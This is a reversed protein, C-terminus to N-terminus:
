KVERKPLAFAFTAGKGEGPSEAWIRGMHAEVLGKTVSLGLGTGKIYTPKKIAAFPEFVRPLDEERIGIGTDAVKVVITQKNERVILRIGGGEPTFKSANNLLNMLVQSLRVPDGLIPLPKKPVEVNFRQKKAKIFPVIESISHRIIERLDIPEPTTQLKGSELRQIDLLDDTLSTLRDTNRKVVELNSKVESPVPGSEGSLVLDLYGKISILPTRLEHTVASMFRDRMEENRKRETLDVLSVLTRNGMSSAHVEVQRLSGDKCTITAEMPQIGGHKKIAQEFRRSWIAKLEERYKEDPYALRWWHALDPVDEMTYGFLETFRKNVLQAEEQVGSLMVMAVPSGEVLQRFRRESEKLVAEAQKQETIDNWFGMVEVPKDSADRIVKAEERIWRSTGDKHLFRYEFVRHGERWLLPLEAYYRSLDDPFIRDHWAEPHGILDKPGFGTLETVRNSMYTPDFDSLDPHPRGTFIAVPNSTIVYELRERVSRLEEEMRKRETIDIWYGDVEKPKGNADRFVKAEERIWRYTGDKHLFRYEFIHRGDKWLLPVEALYRRLDDPHVRDNWMKIYEEPEFGLLSVVSKSLYTADFNSLDPRSRAAFIIAPNSIIVHELEERSSRLEEEMRKRETIDIAIGRLDVIKNEHVIPASHVIAPFTSGDKRQLLYDNSALTEGAILRKVNERRRERDQPSYLQLANLGAQLDEKSYGTSTFAVRNLFTFNHREDVEFVSQPLLDALERFRTESAALKTTRELVLRELGASYQKLEEEMRKRETIDRAVGLYGTVRGTSDVQPVVHDELWCYEESNRKRMRYVRVASKGEIVMQTAAQVEAVDDPHLSRGWISPDDLFEKARYGLIREVQDSMFTLPSVMANADFQGAYILEDINEVLQRYKAEGALLAEEARKRETIDRGYLNVYGAEKIPKVLFTYTKGGFEVAINKDQRTSLADASLDRWFKPAVQGVETGWEQLLLKTAPNATLIAGDKNLRLVPNPNESPFRALGRIEEEMRKRETIDDFTTYAQFPKTEGLKFQPVANINIWRYEESSPNFVGMVVNRVEKGTKLAVMSPHTEGPFDSGDEHIAKWRPDTSTRGQMQDITLGLIREAAPNASIIRGNSDQYVVGQAMTEFLVRHKEESVRLAEEARKRETIETWAGIIELPKGESDRLLRGDEHMWRYTGDKHLFRYECVFRELEPVRALETSVRSRDEPHIHDLYFKPDDTLEHPEYGLISKVNESVFTEAYNGSPEGSYIIALSSTLLHELRSRAMTLEMEARKRETIDLIIAQFGATRGDITYRTPKSMLHLVRGDRHMVRFELTESEIPSSVAKLFLKTVNEIDDPHLFESFRRGLVEEVSYGFLEALAGNVYTFAGTLDIIAVGVGTEEVLSRFRQDSESLMREARERETMDQGCAGESPSESNSLGERKAMRERM